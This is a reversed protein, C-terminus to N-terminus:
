WIVIPQRYTMGDKIIKILYTGKPVNSLNFQFKTDTTNQFSNSLLEKGYIDIISFSIEAASMNKPIEVTFSGTTPNPYLKISNQLTFSEVGSIKDCSDKSPITIVLSDKTTGCQNTIAYIVTDTGTTTAIIVNGSITASENTLSWVGDTPSGTLTDNERSVCVISRGTIAPKAPAANTIVVQTATDSGCFNNVVYIITDTGPLVGTVIGTSVTAIATNNSIWSGSM